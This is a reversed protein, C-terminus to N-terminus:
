LERCRTPLRSGLASSLFGPLPASDPKGKRIEHWSSTPSPLGEGASRHAHTRGFGSRNPTTRVGRVSPREGEDTGSRSEDRVVRRLRPPPASLPEEGPSGRFFRPAGPPSTFRQPLAGGWRGCLNSFNSCSYPLHLEYNKDLGDWLREPQMQLSIKFLNKLFPM